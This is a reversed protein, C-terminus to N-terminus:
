SQMSKANASALDQYGYFQVTNEMIERAVNKGEQAHAVIYRGYMELMRDSYTRLEGRLYTEYSTDYPLDEATHITRADEALNPYQAAFEEMWKVQLAVIQEVIAKKAESVEPLRNAFRAYELPATSEMMRAYKEEIMNRGNAYNTKFEYLYQLLMDETWTMYQSMRMVKFTPWNNQCSARGGENQVKDFAEFESKAISLSLATVIPTNAVIATLLADSKTMLEKTCADLYLDCKGVMNLKELENAFIVALSEVATTLAAEHAIDAPLLSMQEVLKPVDANEMGEEGLTMQPNEPMGKYLWKDHPAYKRNLLYYLKMAQKACEAKALEASVLQGRRRMRPLNYQGSQSFLACTQAVKRYWVAKPYYASLLKRYQTFIGEDDRFVEGNVAAALGYEQVSLWCKITDLSEKGSATDEHNHALMGVLDFGLLNKYFEEIIMVGSRDKGHFTEIRDVGLFQNPLKDYAEQLEEGIEDYVKKTVWMVFRPGFDHDQSLVDDFGFCDSGKGVLGVAIRSEYAHFKGAIMPRGYEEYYRRCLEMGTIPPTLDELEPEEPAEEFVKLEPEKETAVSEEPELEEKVPESIAPEEETVEPKPEEKMPESIVPEEESARQAPEESVPEEETVEPKPEEKVSESIAPEEESAGPAPESSAPGEETVESKPEEKVPEYKDPEEEIVKSESESIAPEEESTGQAPESSVPEEETVESKSEEKVPESIAPAEEFAAQASKEPESEEKVPECKDPDEGFVKPESEFMDPAEESAEPVSEEPASEEGTVAVEPAPEESLAGALIEMEASEVVLTDLASEEPLYELEPMQVPLEGTVEQGVTGADPVASPEEANTREANAGDSVASPEEADTRETDSLKESNKIKDQIIVINESLRQYQINDTGLYKAVCERSKEMANLASNYDKDMYYLSGLASLAASYHADDVGLEEFIRIAEEARARAEDDQGLEICTNALNAQTVAAEFQRDPKHSVISLANVLQDKASAFDGMEQYLLSLNNYFNAFYMDDEDLHTVYIPRVRNYLDLSEQLLGAARHANAINLLTTAYPITDQIGMENMLAVAKHCNEISLTYQGTERYFGIIENYLTLLVDQAGEKAAQAIHSELFQPIEGIKEQAFLADLEQTIQNIDM